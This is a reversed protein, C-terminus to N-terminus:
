QSGTRDTCTEESRAIQDVSLVAIIVFCYDQAVDFGSVRVETEGPAVDALNAYTTGPPGGVVHHSAVGASNDTWSLTVTDGSDDLALDTPAADEVTEAPPAPPEDGASARPSPTPDEVGVGAREMLEDGAGPRLVAVAGVGVAVLAIAVVAVAV